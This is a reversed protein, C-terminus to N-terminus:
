KRGEVKWWLPKTNLMTEGTKLVDKWDPPLFAEAASRLLPFKPDKKVEIGFVKIVAGNPGMKEDLAKKIAPAQTKLILAVFEIQKNLEPDNRNAAIKKAIDTVAKGDGLLGLGGSLLEAGERSLTIQYGSKISEIQILRVVERPPPLVEQDDAATVPVAFALVAFMPLMTRNM